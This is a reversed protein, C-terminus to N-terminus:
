PAAEPAPRRELRRLAAGAEQTLRAEPAGAALTELLRRAELTGRAELALVARVERLRRAEPPRLRARLRALRRRVEADKAGRDAEALAARVAEGAAALADEARQRKAFDPSGLDALLARLREPPVREVETLRRSLFADAGPLAALRWLARHAAAADDGAMMDWLVEPRADKGPLQSRFLLPLDWVLASGDAYSGTALRWGSPAFAASWHQGDVFRHVLRGTCAEYLRLHGASSFWAVLRGDPSVAVAGTVAGGEGGEDSEFPGVERGTATDWAALDPYNSAFLYRGDPTFTVEWQEPARWFPWVERPLTLRSRHKGTTADWLRVNQGKGGSDGTALMRGDPSVRLWTVPGGEKELELRHQRKGTTVDWLRVGRGPGTTVLSRGDSTFSWDAGLPVLGPLDLRKGTQTEYVHLGQDLQLALHRGHPAIRWRFTDGPFGDKPPALAISSLCKGTAAQWRYVEGLPAPAITYSVLERGDASFAVEHPFQVHGPLRMRPRGTRADWLRVVRRVEYSALTTGDPSLLLTVDEDSRRLGPLHLQRTLQGKAVDWLQVSEGWRDWALLVRGDPSFSLGSFDKERTPLRRKAGTSLDYLHLQGPHTYTAGVSNDPALIIGVGSKLTVWKLLRGSAVEVRRVRHGDAASVGVLILQTSDSSFAIEFIAEGKRRRAVPRFAKEGPGWLLVEGSGNVCAALRGDHRLALGRARGDLDPSRSLLKGSPFDWLFLATKHPPGLL